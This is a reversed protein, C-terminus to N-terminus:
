EGDPFDVVVRSDSFFLPNRLFGTKAEISVPKKPLKGIFFGVIRSTADRAPTDGADTERWRAFLAESGGAIAFRM